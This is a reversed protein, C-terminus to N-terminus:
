LPLNKKMSFEGRGYAESVRFQASIDGQDPAKRWWAVAQVDNQEVGAGYACCTGLCAQANAHGLDGAERLLTAGKFRNEELGDIGELYFAGLTAQASV